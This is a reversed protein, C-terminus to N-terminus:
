QLPLKDLACGREVKPEDAVAVRAGSDANFISIHCGSLASPDDVIGGKIVYRAGPAFESVFGIRCTRNANAWGRMVLHLPKGAEIPFYGPPTSTNKYVSVLEGGQVVQVTRGFKCGLTPAESLNLANRHNDLADLESRIQAQPAGAPVLYKPAPTCGALLAISLLCLHKM